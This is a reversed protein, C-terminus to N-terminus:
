FQFSGKRVCKSWTELPPVNSVTVPVLRAVMLSGLIRALYQLESLSFTLPAPQPQPCLVFLLSATQTAIYPLFHVREGEPTITQLPQPRPAAAGFLPM